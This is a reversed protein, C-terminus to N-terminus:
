RSGKMTRPARPRKRGRCGGCLGLLEVRPATIQFDGIRARALAKGVAPVSDAPLDHIRGCSTCVLHYHTEPKGDFRMRAGGIELKNIMGCGSLVDLNRYVTGLSIRPLRRKVMEYMEDATPHSDSKRLEDLIIERQRTTKLRRETL